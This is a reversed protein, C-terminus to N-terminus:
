QRGDRGWLAFAAAGFQAAIGVYERMGPAEERLNSATKWV